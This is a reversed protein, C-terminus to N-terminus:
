EINQVQERIKELDAKAEVVLHAVVSNQSKSGITNFERNFEQLLFDIRRGAPSADAFFVDVQDFHSKLRQLEETIDSRDLYYVVEMQLRVPDIEAIDKLRTQIKEKLRAELEAQMSEKHSAIKAAVKQLNAFMALMDKKLNDGEKARMAMLDTLAMQLVVQFEDWVKDVDIERQIWPGVNSIVDQIAIEGPIKLSTQVGKLYAYCAKYPEIETVALNSNKEEAVYIDIKGRSVNKRIFQQILLELALYRSPLRTSVECFRHNISKMEVRLNASQVVGHARGMGTMSKM